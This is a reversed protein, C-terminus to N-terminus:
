RGPSATQVDFHTVSVGGTAVDAIDKGAVRDSAAPDAPRGYSVVLRHVM